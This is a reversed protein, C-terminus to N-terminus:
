ILGNLDDVQLASLTYLLHAEHGDCPRFGGSDHQNRKVFEIIENRNFKEISNSIDLFTLSWYIGSMRLYDSMEFEKFIVM